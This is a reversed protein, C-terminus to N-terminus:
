GAAPSGVTAEGPGDNGAAAVVVAGALAANSAAVSASDDPTGAGGLSLNIVNAIPKPQMTLTFPSVADELALNTAAVLCSGTGTCVKYGMIKAQPAVGHIRVDDTTGPLGDDGPAMALYGGIDAACHTGHGFDDITGQLPLYYAVKQNTPVSASVPAVGLRPATPDGGFMPHTWDIGTDLVAVYVGQGENGDPYSAFQTMDNPNSGYLRPADIYDVSKSLAVHYQTNPSVNKLEPMSKLVSLSAKPLTMGIGNLVMTYRYQFTGASVGDFGKIDISDVTFNVGRSKLSGLFQDQSAKLQDRYAQLQQDSVTGGSKQTKARYVAGPDGKLQVIVSVPGTNLAATSRLFPLSLVLAGVLIGAAIRAIRFM